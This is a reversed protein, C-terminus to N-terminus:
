TLLGGNIFIKIGLAVLVLGGILEAKNNLKTGIQIGVRISIACMVLTIVMILTVAYLVFEIHYNNFTLGVSLADISTTIGQIWLLGKTLEKKRCEKEDIEEDNLSEYLMKIGLISLLVLAVLHNYELIEWSIFGVCFYGLLPMVGQFIAYVMAIKISNLINPKYILGNSACICSADIALGIGILCIDIFTM